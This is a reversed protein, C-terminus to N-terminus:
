GVKASNYRDKINKLYFRGLSNASVFQSYLERSVGSYTYVGGKKGKQKFQVTLTQKRANYSVTQFCTSHIKEDQIEITQVEASENVIRLGAHQPVLGGVVFMPMSDLTNFTSEAVVHATAVLQPNTNNKMLAILQVLNSNLEKINQNLEIMETKKM